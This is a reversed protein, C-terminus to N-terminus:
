RPEHCGLRGGNYAEQLDSGEADLITEWDCEM